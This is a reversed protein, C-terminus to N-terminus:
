GEFEAVLPTHDSPKELKRPALDVFCDVSREALPETTLIHDIRWGKNQEIVHRGRYDYFTYVGPEPHHKRLVDVFGWDVVRGFAERVEPNFCVHGEIRKPDHVDLETPAVNLDGCWLVPKEVTYHQGFFGVLRSLWELKYRYAPKDVGQGQPVYTNVIEIDGLTGRILRDDDRPGGDDIGTSVNELPERTIIAVGNRGGDGRFAARYGAEEFAQEPFADDAVRTEQLCLADPENQELWDLVIPLRSRISNVNFTAIKM